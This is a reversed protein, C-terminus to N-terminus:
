SDSDEDAEPATTRQRKSSHEEDHRRQDDDDHDHARALRTAQLFRKRHILPLDEPDDTPWQSVAAPDDGAPLSAHVHHPAIPATDDRAIAADEGATRVHHEARLARRKLILPADEGGGDASEGRHVRQSGSAADADVAFLSSGTAHSEATGHRFSIPSSSPSPRSSAAATVTTVPMSTGSAHAHQARMEEAARQRRENAATAAAERRERAQTVKARKTQQKAEEKKMSRLLADVRRNIESASRSKLFYDFRFEADRRIQARLKTWEGYGLLRCWYLLFRDEHLSFGRGSWVFM